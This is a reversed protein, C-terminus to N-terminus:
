ARFVTNRQGNIASMSPKGSPVIIQPQSAYLKMLELQAKQQDAEYKQALEAQKAQDNAVIKMQEIYVKTDDSMQQTMIKAKAEIQAVQSEIQMQSIYAQMQDITMQQSQITEDAKALAQEAEPDPQSNPDSGIGTKNKAYAQLKSAVIEADQYNSNRVLDDAFVLTAEPGLLAGLALLSNLSEQRQTAIMPGAEVDVEVESPIIGLDTFTIESSDMKGDISMPMMRSTDWVINALELWVKGIARVAQSANDIFQFNSVESSKSRTLVETATEQLGKSVSNGQEPMGMIGSLLGQFNTQATTTDSINVAPNSDTPANLPKGDEDTSDYPLYPTNVKNANAYLSKYPAISKMDVYRTNKPAIAIREAGLSATWNILRAPDRAFHVIGVYRQRDQVDIMEGAFRIVPIRSLPLEISKVVVDGCITHCEVVTEAVERIREPQKKIKTISGEYPVMEGNEGRYVKKSKKKLIYYTIIEASEEPASWKTGSLPSALDDWDHEDGLREEAEACSVHEVVAVERVDEGSPDLAIGYIVLDPRTITVVKIDQDFSTNDLYDTTLALYGLGCKVQRDVAITCASAVNHTQQWGLYLAQAQKAKLVADQRKASYTVGFPDRRYANIIQNAYQRVLNFVLEARGKGRMAKDRKDTYQKGGAFELDEKIADVDGSCYKNMKTAFKQLKEIVEDNETM